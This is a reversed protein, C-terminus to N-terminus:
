AKLTVKMAASSSVTSALKVGGIGGYKRHSYGYLQSPQNSAASVSASFSAEGNIDNRREIGSVGSGLNNINEGIGAAM